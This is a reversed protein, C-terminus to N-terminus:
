LEQEMRDQHDYIHYSGRIRQLQWGYLQLLKCFTKGSISKM